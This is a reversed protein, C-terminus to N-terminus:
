FRGNGAWAKLASRGIHTCQKLYPVTDDILRNRRKSGAAILGTTQGNFQRLDIHQITPLSKSRWM